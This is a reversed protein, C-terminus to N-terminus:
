NAGRLEVWFRSGLGPESTMGVRGGMREAAKRVIALGIGNGDGTNSGKQFIRFIREHMAEPIGVGNDEVSIRVWGNGTEGRIQIRSLQGPQAFKVANELLNSFCQTLAAENGQVVPLDPPVSVQAHLSQLAPYTAVIGRLLDSVNVPHLPLEARAIVSYNLVDCILHDMRAAAARMRELYERGRLSLRETDEELLMSGFGMLARLPARMDHMISYSMHELESLAEKLKATQAELQQQYAFVEKVRVNRRRVLEGLEDQPLREEPVAAAKEDGIALARDSEHLMQIPRIIRRTSSWALALVVLGLGATVAIVGRRLAQVPAYAQSFDIETLVVWRPDQLIISAGSVEVGRYDRYTETIEQGHEFAARVPVTDVKVNLVSNTLYLSETLMMRNQDVIYTEGTKGIRFSQTDAGLRRTRRGTTLDSLSGPDIRLVAVGLLRHEAQERIPAAMMWTIEGSNPDKVVEGGCFSQQGNRFCSQASLDRGLWDSDSAAVVRGNRNLILAQQVEPNRTQLAALSKAVSGRTGLAGPDASAQPWLTQTITEDEAASRLEQKLHQLFERLEAEAGDSAVRLTAFTQQRVTSESSRVAFWGVLALPLLSIALFIALFRQGIKTSLFEWGKKLAAVRPKM